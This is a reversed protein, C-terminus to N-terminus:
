EEITLTAKIIQVEHHDKFGMMTGDELSVANVFLNEGFEVEGNTKICYVNGFMFITGCNINGFRKVKENLKKVIEM